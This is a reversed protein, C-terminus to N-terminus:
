FGIDGIGESIIKLSRKDRETVEVDNWTDWLFNETRTQVDKYDITISIGDTTVSKMDYPEREGRIVMLQSPDSFHLMGWPLRIHINNETITIANLNNDENIRLRGVHDISDVSVAYKNNKIRFPNWPSGNTITTHYKQSESSEYHYIGFLDYAETVYLQASNLSLELLFESRDDVISGNPLVSEGTDSYITNFAIFLTDTTVMTEELTLDLILYSNNYSIEINGINTRLKRRKKKLSIIPEEEFSLLGFNQEPNLKNNWYQRRSAPFEYHSVNWGVKFWEDIWSFLIGGACNAEYMNDFMRLAFEGQETETMGGHNMGSYSYHANGWSTPVGFEAILVPIKDYHYKLDTLYGLYSNIGSQDEFTQYIPDENIFDPFYPYAHFSAFFGAKSQSRDLNYLDISQSDHYWMETFHEIPDLTPWNSFSVPRQVNYNSYEYNLLNDM